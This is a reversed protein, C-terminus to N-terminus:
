DEESEGAESDEAYKVGLIYDAAKQAQAGAQVLLRSDEKLKRLWGAIYAASNEITANEIGCVGCLMAAGMEAVLEEKSYLEDGFAAMETIGQRNLRSNHGTSHVMEHFLTSYYENPNKYDCLPPVSIYDLVKHYFAKGPAFRIEPANMFGNVVKEAEEIPDHDFVEDTRRSKLGECQTNIEFVKYYKLFPIKEDTPEGEENMKQLWKWFVVIHGKEGKKVRGGAEKIQKFTAYEGPELLWVNIGRYPKQTQWNVAMGRNVWPQRWPVVGKELQEIIRNTVIEYVNM